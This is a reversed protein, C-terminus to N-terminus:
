EAEQTNLFVLQIQMFSLEVSLSIYQSSKSDLNAQRYHNQLIQPCMQSMVQLHIFTFTFTANKTCPKSRALREESPSKLCLNFNPTFIPSAHTILSM